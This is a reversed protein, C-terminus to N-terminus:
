DSWQLGWPKRRGTKSLRSGCASSRLSVVAIGGDRGRATVKGDILGSSAEGKARYAAKRAPLVHLGIVM